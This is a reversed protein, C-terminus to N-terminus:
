VGRWGWLDRAFQPLKVGGSGGDQVEYGSPRPNSDRGRSGGGGIASLGPLVPKRAYPVNGRLRKEARGTGACVTDGRLCADHHVVSGFRDSVDQAVGVDRFASSAM